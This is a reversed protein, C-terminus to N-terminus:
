RNSISREAFDFRLSHDSLPQFVDRARVHFRYDISSTVDPSAVLAEDHSVVLLTGSYDVLAAELQEIAAVDLHNTPEDLVLV